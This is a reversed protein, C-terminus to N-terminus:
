ESTRKVEIRLTVPTGEAPLVNSNTELRLLSTEALTLNSQLVTEDTVPYITALTGSLDAGYVKAPKAPDPQRIASGTFHWKLPPMKKGTRIDIMAPEIPVLRTKGAVGPLELAVTVEPGTASAGEGKAPKGPKLGLQELAKHIESPRAEFTVITEHAKQGRPTPFTALVELPYVDKLNPLKRPAIKAPISIRRNAKDVAIVAAAPGAGATKDSLCVVVSPQNPQDGDINTTALFLEGGHVVPSGFFMGPGQVAPDTAVNFTWEPKGDALSVAHVIGKLDAAYVSGGSVAPGAFFPAGANYSWKEAGNAVAWARVTGDTATAVALDGSVAVASLVGGPLEKRWLIAGNEINVALVEGKATPIGKRDFRISSCGTLVTNGTVTPGAWPNYKGALPVEWLVKGDGAGLCVLARKGVKDDDIYASAVLVREGTVAVPADVHLTGKGQQWVLKPAPKPLADESPPIAFDPDKKKAEAYKATLEAWRTEILKQAAAPDTDQGELTLKKLEVCIVGADGAGIYVRDKEVTPSGEMHVLKGPVSFQWVPRGNDARICYLTAGDTQHMGDGFIVFGGTVAPASVSPLKIFPSGKSWLAREAIDADISLAHFAPTNFAGLGPLYLTGADPVPSAIFHQAAKYAWLVRPKKPGPQADINGTRQLNGRSTTWDASARPLTLFLTLLLLAACNLGPLM